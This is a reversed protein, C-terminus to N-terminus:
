IQVPKQGQKGIFHLLPSLTGTGLRSGLLQQMSRGMGRCKPPPMARHLARAPRCSSSSVHNGCGSTVLWVCGHPMRGVPQGRDCCHGWDPDASGSGFGCSWGPSKGIQLCYDVNITKLWQIRPYNAMHCSNLSQLPVPFLRLKRSRLLTLLFGTRSQM